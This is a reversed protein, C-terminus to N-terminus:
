NEKEKCGRGDEQMIYVPWSLLPIMTVKLGQIGGPKKLPRPVENAGSKVKDTIDSSAHWTADPRNWGKYSRMGPNNLKSNKM